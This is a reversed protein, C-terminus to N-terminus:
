VVSNQAKANLIFEPIFAAEVAPPCYQFQLLATNIFLILHKVLFTDNKPNLYHKLCTFISCFYKLYDQCFM